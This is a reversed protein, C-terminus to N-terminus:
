FKDEVLSCKKHNKKSSSHCARKQDITFKSFKQHISSLRVTKIESTKISTTLDSNVTKELDVITLGM